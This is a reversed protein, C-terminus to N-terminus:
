TEDAGGWVSFNTGYIRNKVISIYAKPFGVSLCIYLQRGLFQGTTYCFYM